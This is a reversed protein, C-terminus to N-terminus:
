PFVAPKKHTAESPTTSSIEVAFTRLTEPGTCVRRSFDDEAGQTAKQIKGPPGVTRPCTAWGEICTLRSVQEIIAETHRAIGKM